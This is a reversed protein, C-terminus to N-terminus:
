FVEANVIVNGGVGRGIVGRGTTVGVDGKTGVEGETGVMGVTLPPM